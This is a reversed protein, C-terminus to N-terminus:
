ESSEELALGLAPYEESLLDCLDGRAEAETEEICLYEMTLDICAHLDNRLDEGDHYDTPDTLDVYHERMMQDFVNCFVADLDLVAPLEGSPTTMAKLMRAVRERDEGAPMHELALKLCEAIEEGLSEPAEDMAAFQEAHNGADSWMEVRPDNLSQAPSHDFGNAQDFARQQENFGALIARAIQRATINM